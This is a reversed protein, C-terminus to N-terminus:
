ILAEFVFQRVQIDMYQYMATAFAFWGLESAAYAGMCLGCIVLKFTRHRIQSIEDKRSLVGTEEEKAQSNSSFM